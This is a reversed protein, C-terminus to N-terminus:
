SMSTSSAGPSDSDSRWPTVVTSRPRTRQRRHVDTAGVGTVEESADLRDRAVVHDRRHVAVLGPPAALLVDVSEFRPWEPRVDGREESVRVHPGRRHAEVAGGSGVGSGRPGLERLHLPPEGVREIGPEDPQGDCCSSNSLSSPSVQRNACGATSRDRRALQSAQLVPGRVPRTRCDPGSMVWGRFTSDCASCDNADPAWAQLCAQERGGVDLGVRLGHADHAREGPEHVPEAAVEAPLM